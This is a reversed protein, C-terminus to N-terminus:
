INMTIDKAKIDVAGKFLGPYAFAKNIARGDAVAAGAKLLDDVAIEGVPDSLPFVLLDQAMVPIVEKSVTNSKAASIFM